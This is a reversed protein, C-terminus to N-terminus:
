ELGYEDKIFSRLAMLVVPLEKFRLQYKTNRGEKIADIIKTNRLINLHKTINSPDFNPFSEVLEKNYVPGYSLIKIIQFRVPHSIANLIEVAKDLCEGSCKEFM